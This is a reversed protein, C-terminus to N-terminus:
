VAAQEVAPHTGLKHEIDSLEIRFGNLKVQEDVRGLYELEGQQNWRVMDGTDYMKSGPLFPNDMFRQKSLQTNTYGHALGAGGLFLRGIVGQPVMNEHADLVFAQIGQIPRGIPVSPGLHRKGDYKQVICGITAETPGYENYIGLDKGLADTVSRALKSKFDEGGVIMLRLLSKSVDIGELLALHSPTLKISNVKNEQIVQLLSVDPGMFNETYIYLTGGSILPMFTATLTLDFSISTFLPFHFPDDLAYYAKGWNLYNALASHPIVVGKPKGTTGSTYIRYAPHEMKTKVSQFDISQSKIEEGLLDVNLTIGPVDIGKDIRRSNSVLAKSKSDALIHAVRDKPQDSAIPVFSAGLKLTALVAIIYEPSRELYLSVNDGPVVDKKKLLNAWQNTRDNLERYSVITGNHVLAKGDPNKELQREFQAMVSQLPIKPPSTTSLAVQRENETILSARTLPQHIDELLADLLNLFHQPMAQRLIPGFVKENLDFYVHINGSADFDYVHCRLHHAPDCHGPHIWESKASIGEMDDFSATIYNLVANFSKSVQPTAGGPQAYRLYDNTELKIRGLLSMFSDTDEVQSVLPFIEIFLGPTKRFAKTPRNLAPAGLALKKQGSVRHIFAFLLTAFLNFLTLNPTFSRIEPLLALQKLKQARNPGLTLAVRESHTSRVTENNGYLPPVNLLEKTKVNWYEQVPFNSEQLRLRTEYAVYEQYKPFTQGAQSELTGFYHVLTRKYLLTSSTADTVLHHVNLFWITRDPGMKLLVSDFLRESLDFNMRSRNSLWEQIYTRDKSSFDLHELTYAIAAKVTQYVDGKEEIFVTRLADSEAIVSQFARQFEALDIALPIEFSHAMNYLPVEPHLRQGAYIALQGQTLGQMVINGKEKM